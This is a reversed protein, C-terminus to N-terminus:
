GAPPAPQRAREDDLSLPAGGVLGSALAYRALEARLVDDPMGMYPNAGAPDTPAIKTPADIGLIKCRREICWQVGALYAPNGLMTEETVTANTTAVPGTRAGKVTRKRDACSRRWAEWYELELANIRALEANTWETVDGDRAKRWDAFIAKLDLSVQVQSVGLRDAIDVQRWGSCYLRSTEALDHERQAHTRKPAAM